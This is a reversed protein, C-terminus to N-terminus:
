DPQQLFVVPVEAYYSSEEAIVALRILTTPSLPDPLAALWKSSEAGVARMAVPPAENSGDVLGVTATKLPFRSSLELATGGSAGTVPRLTLKFDGNELDCEGSDYRCNSKAILAYAAGPLAAHPKEALFYDISYWALIALVPAVLMAVVVHKNTFVM